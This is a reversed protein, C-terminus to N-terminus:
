GREKEQLFVGAFCGALTLVLRGPM